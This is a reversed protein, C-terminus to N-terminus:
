LSGLDQLNFAGLRERKTGKLGKFCTLAILLMMTTMM